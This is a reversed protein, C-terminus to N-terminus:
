GIINVLSLEPNCLRGALAFTAGVVLCKLAFPKTM